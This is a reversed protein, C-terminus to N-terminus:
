ENEKVESSILILTDDRVRVWEDSKGGVIRDGQGWKGVGRRM